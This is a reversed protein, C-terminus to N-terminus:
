QRGTAWNKKKLFLLIIGLCLIQTRNHVSQAHIILCLIQACAADVHTQVHNPLEATLSFLLLCFMQIKQLLSGNSTAFGRIKHKTRLSLHSSVGVM